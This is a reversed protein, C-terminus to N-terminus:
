RTWWVWGPLAELRRVRELLLEGARGRTRQKAVWAGIRFGDDLVVKQPPYVNDHSDLWSRLRDFSQEWAGTPAEWCWGAIAELQAQRGPELRGERQLSRARYIWSALHVGSKSHSGTPDCHGERAFFAAVAAVGAAFREEPVNWSWGPLAELAAVREAALTGHGYLGRQSGVWSGLAFGDVVLPLPVAAHGERRVFDCLRQYAVPWADVTPSWGWRSLTELRRLRGPDLQGRRYRDRQTAVWGGLTYGDGLVVSQAPIAGDHDATWAVLRSYGQEWGAEREHDVWGPLARLEVSRGADLRGSRVAVRQKQVWRGVDFGDVTDGVSPSAHGHEVAWRTLSEFHTRWADARVDWSWGCLAELAAIREPDVLVGDKFHGRITNVWPGINQGKWVLHTSCNAIGGNESRAWEALADFNAWWQEEVPDWQWGPVVDLAAEREPALLGRRRLTRQVGCWAGLSFTGTEDPVLAPQPVRATGHQEVWARLRGLAEDWAPTAERILHLAMAGALEGTAGGPVWLEVRSQLLGRAARRRLLAGMEPATTTTGAPRHGVLQRTGDLRSGLADDHARLARLVGAVVDLGARDVGAIPDSPDTAGSILVPLLVTGVKNTGGPRRLARGVAQLVSRESNKPDVIAVGDLEPLDVGEGLAQDNAIVGWTAPDGLRALLRQRIGVPTGGHVWGSWGPGAPRDAVLAEAVPGILGAFLRAREVRSHFSLVSGLAFEGMARVVAIAGALLQPDIGALQPRAAVRDFTDRDVAAVVVRYDAIVGADVAESLRLRFVEPGFSGEDDMGVVELDRGHQRYRRPTASMFLIREASIEGRVLAAFPKAREGALHHAEDAVALDFGVGAAVLVPSSQYTAVVVRPRGPAAGGVFSRVREASTTSELSLDRDTDSCVALFEAAPWDRRWVEVTQGVLSLSPVQVLVRDADLAVASWLGVRTKGSAPAMTIRCRGGSAVAAEVARVADVQHAWPRVSEGVVAVKTPERGAAGDEEWSVYAAEGTVGFLGAHRLVNRLQVRGAASTGGWLGLREGSALAAGLCEAQVPCRNRCVGILERFGRDPRSPYFREAPMGECAARARWGGVAEDPGGALAIGIAREMVEVDVDAAAAASKIVGGPVVLGEAPASAPDSAQLDEGDLVELGPVSSWSRATATRTAAAPDVTATM